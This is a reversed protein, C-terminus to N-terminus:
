ITQLREVIDRTRSVRGQWKEDFEAILARISASDVIAQAREISPFEYVAYHIGDEVRSWGRWASDVNFAKAADPLHEQQYWENFPERDAPDPVEARVILYASM